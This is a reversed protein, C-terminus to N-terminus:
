KTFAITAISIKIGPVCLLANACAELTSGTTLVDDILLVHQGELSKPETVHFVDQMNEYREYRNKTTQTETKHPRLLRTSVMSVGMSEALGRGFYECQNYGRKRLRKRHLPVPIIVEIDKFIETNKLHFGYQKGVFTAAQPKNKYKIAHLIHQVHTGSSFYLYSTVAQLPVRGWFRRAAQNKDDLHFNTYPLHFLCHTCIYEEQYLLPRNCGICVSPFFLSIFDKLYNHIGM